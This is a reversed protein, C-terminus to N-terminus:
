VAGRLLVRRSGRPRYLRSLRQFERAAQRQAEALRSGDDAPAGRRLRRCVEVVAGHTVWDAPAATVAADNPLRPFARIGEVVLVDGATPPPDIELWLEPGHLGPNTFTRWWAAATMLRSADAAPRQWVEILQYRHRLWRPLPLVPRDSALVVLGDWRTVAAPEAGGLRVELLHCGQPAAVRLAMRRWGAGAAKEVALDVGRSADHVALVATSGGPDVSAEVTYRRGPTTPVPAAAACGRAATNSVQLSRAGGGAGRGAAVKALLAGRATWAQVGDAEMDGDEIVTLAARTEFWCRDLTSDIAEDVMRAPALRSLEYRSTADIPRPFPRSVTLSGAAPDYAATRRSEGANAGDFVHLWSGTWLEPSATSDQLQAADQLTVSSGGAATGTVFAGLERAVRHRLSRRTSNM